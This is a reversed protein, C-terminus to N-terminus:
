KLSALAVRQDSALPPRSSQRVERGRPIRADQAPASGRKTERWPSSCIKQKWALPSRGPQRDGRGRPVELIRHLHAVKNRREGPRLLSTKTELGAPVPRPAPGRTREKPSAFEKNTPLGAHVPRLAAGTGDLGRPALSDTLKADCGLTRRRKKLGAPVPRRAPGRM